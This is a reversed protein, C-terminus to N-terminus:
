LKAECLVVFDRMPLMILILIIKKEIDNRGCGFCTEYAIYSLIEKIATCKQLNILQQFQIIIITMLSKLM